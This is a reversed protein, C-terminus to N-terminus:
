LRNEENDYDYWASMWAHDSGDGKVIKTISKPQLPKTVEKETTKPKM